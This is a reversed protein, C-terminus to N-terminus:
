TGGPTGPRIPNPIPKINPDSGPTLLHKPTNPYMDSAYIKAGRAKLMELLKLRRAEDSFFLVQLARAARDLGRDTGHNLLFEAVDFQGLGIATNLATDGSIEHTFNVDAGYKVLLEVLDKHMVSQMLISDGKLEGPSRAPVRANPNAGHKLLLEMRNAGTERAIRMLIPWSEGSQEDLVSHNPNAGLALLREMCALNRTEVCWYLPTWNYRGQVDVSVGLKVLKDIEAIDGRRAAHVLRRANADAWIDEITQGLVKNAGVLNAGWGNVGLSWAVGLALVVFLM